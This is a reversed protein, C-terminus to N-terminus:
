LIIKLTKDSINVNSPIMKFHKMKPNKHEGESIELLIFKMIKM